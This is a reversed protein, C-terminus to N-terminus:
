RWRRGEPSPQVTSCTPSLAPRASEDQCMTFLEEFQDVVLLLRQSDPASALAVQVAGHLGRDNKRLAALLSRRAALPDSGGDLHPLLRAALTELPHPGPKFLVISWRDNAPLVGGRIQPVLGARVLSSKGSGSPGIVALFRDERM